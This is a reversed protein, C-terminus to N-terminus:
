LRLLNQMLEDVTEIMRANAAYAQEILMLRQMEYDSDVGNQLEMTKLENFQTSAFTMQTEMVQRDFGVSSLLSSALGSSSRAASGFDGSAPTRLASMTTSLGQLLSADGLPGASVAGLGDRIRWSGGGASADVAANIELRGALGIEDAVVFAAGQDTFLGADGPARTADLAPDEFREVLDRAVADIQAQAGTSIEDRIEFLAALKGGAIPGRDNDTSVDRGNVELGSLLGNDVTMHPMIVNSATFSLEVASSDVLIAGGPTFLAVAGRDRPVERVPIIEAISDIVTQRLDELSATEKGQHQAASIRVNLDQVQELSVNLRDVTDKIETDVQRRMDQIGDSITNITEAVSSARLVVEDLRETSEPRSAAAVLSSEFVAIRSSLSYEDEPTGLLTEMRALFNATTETNSYESSAFRRDSLLSQNVDRNVGNVQVGGASGIVSSSQSLERRAYGDTMINSLNSSVVEAARSAATLGTLANNLAGSISM